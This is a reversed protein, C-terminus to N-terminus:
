SASNKASFYSIGGPKTSKNATLLATIDKDLKLGSMM